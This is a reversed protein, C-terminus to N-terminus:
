RQGTSCWCSWRGRRHARETSCRRVRLRIPHMSGTRSGTVPSSIACSMSRSARPDGVVVIPTFGRGERKAWEALFSEVVFHFGEDPSASPKPLYYDFQGLAMSRLIPEAASRDGWSILLGRKATPHLDCARRLLETGVMDAMWHSAMVLAVPRDEDRCEQLRGLARGPSSECWVDYDGAYRKRLEHQLTALDGENDDVAVIVARDHDVGM